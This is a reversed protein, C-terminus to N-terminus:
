APRRIALILGNWNSVPIIQVPVGNQSAHILFATNGVRGIFMGVHGPNANNGDDGAIFILDGPQMAGLSSVPTGLKVQAYTSHPLPVGVTAWAAMVLGSCDFTDPGATGYLYPKGLQDLAYNVLHVQQETGVVQFGAPPTTVGPVGTQKGQKGLGDGGTCQTTQAAALDITAANTWYKTVLTDAFQEYKAYRDPFASRQVDQAADGLPISQWNHIRVLRTLFATTAKRPDAAVDAGYISVRQQFLGISDHDVMTQYNRLTSETMATAVAIEAAKAPLHISATTDVITRANGLQEPSLKIGKVQQAPGGPGTQDCSTGDGAFAAVGIVISAVAGIVVVVAAAIKRV